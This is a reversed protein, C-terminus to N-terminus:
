AQKKFKRSALGIMGLALIALSTPEPVQAASTTIQFSATGETFDFFDAAVYSIHISNDTFSLTPVENPTVLDNTILSIGTIIESGSFLINDIYADFTEFDWTDQSDLLLINTTPDYDMWVLGGGWSSPNTVFDGDAKDLEYGAGISQALEQYILAGSGISPLDSSTTFDGQILGANAVSSVALILGTVTSKLYKFTM